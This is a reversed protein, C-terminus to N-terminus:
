ASSASFRTEMARKLEIDGVPKSLRLIGRLRDSILLPSAYGTVFFFPIGAHELAEAVPESTGGRINIDLIAGRVPGAALLSIAEAASAIPGVPNYGLRRVNQAIMTGVLFNDEVILVSSSSVASRTAATTNM